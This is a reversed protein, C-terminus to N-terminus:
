NKNKVFSRVWIVPYTYLDLTQQKGFIHWWVNVNTCSSLMVDSFRVVRIYLRMMALLIMVAMSAAPHRHLSLAKLCFPYLTRIECVSEEALFSM